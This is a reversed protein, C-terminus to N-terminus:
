LLGKIRDDVESGSVVTKGMQASLQHESRVGSEQKCYLVRFMYELAAQSKRPFEAQESCNLLRPGVIKRLVM